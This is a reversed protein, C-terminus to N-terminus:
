DIFGVPMRIGPDTQSSHFNNIEWNRYGNFVPKASNGLGNKKNM